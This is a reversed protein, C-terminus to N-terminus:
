DDEGVRYFTNFLCVRGVITNHLAFATYMFGDDIDYWHFFFFCLGSCNYPGWTLWSLLSGRWSLAEPITVVM